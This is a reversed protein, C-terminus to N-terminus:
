FYIQNYLEENYFSGLLMEDWESYCGANMYYGALYM